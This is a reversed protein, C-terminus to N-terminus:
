LDDVMAPVLPNFKTLYGNLRVFNDGIRDGRGELATAFANLTASLDAPRVAQLLPYVDTLVEEVEIPIKAQEIVGNPPLPESSPESPMQLAVYKEGFLTKPVILASVDEPIDDVRDPILALNLVAGEDVVEITRVEGVVVGRLKVDARESLQLGISSTRVQAPVFDVFQKNYIAYTLWGFGLLMALFAIGLFRGSLTKM